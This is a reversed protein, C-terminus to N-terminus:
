LRAAPKRKISDAVSSIMLYTMTNQGYPQNKVYTTALIEIKIFMTSKMAGIYEGGGYRFSYRSIYM